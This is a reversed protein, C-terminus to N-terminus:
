SRRKTRRMRCATATQIRPEFLTEAFDRRVMEQLKARIGLLLGLQGKAVHNYPDLGSCYADAVAKSGEELKKALSDYETAAHRVHLQALAQADTVTFPLSSHAASKPWAFWVAGVGFCLVFLVIGAAMLLIPGMNAGLRKKLDARVGGHPTFAFHFPAWCLRVAFLAAVGIAACLAFGLARGLFIDGVNLQVGSAYAVLAGLFGVSATQWKSGSGRWAYRFIEGM